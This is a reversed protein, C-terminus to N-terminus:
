QKTSFPLRGLDKLRVEAQGVGADRFKRAYFPSREMLYRFQKEWASSARAVAQDYSATEVERDWIPDRDCTDDPM